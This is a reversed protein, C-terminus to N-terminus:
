VLTAIEMLRARTLAKIIFAIHKSFVAGVRIKGFTWNNKECKNKCFHFRLFLRPLHIYATITSFAINPM